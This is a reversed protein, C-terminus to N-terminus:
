SFTTLRRLQDPTLKKNSDPPPMRRDPDSSNIREVAISAKPDHPIIARGHKLQAYAGASSDLRLGSVRQGKDPGHCAFCNDSLIPHIDRNFDIQEPAGRLPLTGVLFASAVIGCLALRVFM